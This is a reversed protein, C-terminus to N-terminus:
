MPSQQLYTLLDALEQDSLVSEFGEPMLSLGTSRIAILDEKSIIEEHGNIQRLTIALDSEEILVGSTTSGDGREVIHNIFPPDAAANPDLIDHYLTEKSKRYIETLDPGVASGSGAMLHCSACHLDYVMKGSQPDGEMGLSQRKAMLAEKRTTVGADTFHKRARRQIEESADFLLHRRRELDFNFESVHLEGSDFADLLIGHNIENYILYDSAFRRIRPSLTKWNEIALKGVERSEYSSLAEWAAKQNEFPYKPHLFDLLPTSTRAFDGFKLLEIQYPKLNDKPTTLINELIASIDTSWQQKEALSLAAIVNASNGTEIINTILKQWNPSLDRSSLPSQVVAMLITQLSSDEASAEFIEELYSLLYTEQGQNIAQRVLMNQLSANKSDHGGRMKALLITPDLNVACLFSVQEVYNLDRRQLQDSLADAIEEKYNDFVSYELKGLALSAAKLVAMDSSSLLHVLRDLLAKHTPTNLYRETLPIFYPLYEQGVTDLVTSLYTSIDSHADLLNLLHFTSLVDRGGADLADQLSSVADTGREYLLRHMTMRQWQNPHSLHEICVQNDTYNSTWSHLEEGKQTIKYIRGKGRGQLLDMDEELEDPIWEPHEIVGRYMDVIYLAGDPGVSMNVPRFHRDKSAVFEAHQDVRSAVKQDGPESRNLRDRHVLNLVVDCVLVTQDLTPMAGGGYYTIGCAGSFYGSQEPHNVRTEQVGIPYIRSLGNEEHDSINVLTQRHSIPLNQLYHAKIMIQRIHHLNHTGYVNGWEDIALEFGGSSRGAHEIIRDELEIRIDQNRINIIESSDDSWYIEGGNGGNAMYIWNDPSMGLGNFNHQLNGEPFGSIISKRYEAKGDQDMDAIYLLDPPAAVLFGDRYPMFSTAQRLSDAYLHADDFVGDEDQDILKILSSEVDSHPYGPMQLVYASGNACFELDVPDAILPESAVLEIDFGPVIVM